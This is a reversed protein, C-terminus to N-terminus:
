EVADHVEHEEITIIAQSDTLRATFQAAVTLSEFVGACDRRYDRQLMVLWVTM